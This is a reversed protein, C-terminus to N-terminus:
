SSRAGLAGLLRGSFARAFIAAEAEDTFDVRCVAGPLQRFAIPQYRMHDLWTRMQSLEDMLRQPESSMSIEVIYLMPERGVEPRAFLPSIPPTKENRLHQRRTM